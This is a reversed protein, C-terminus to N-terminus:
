FVFKEIMGMDSGGSLPWFRQLLGIIHGYVQM